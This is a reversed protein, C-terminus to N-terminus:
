WVSLCRWSEGAALYGFSLGVGDVGVEVAVELPFASCSERRTVEEAVSVLAERAEVRVKRKM